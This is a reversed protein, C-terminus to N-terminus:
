VVGRRKNASAESYRYPSAPRGSHDRIERRGRLRDFNAMAREFGVTSPYLLARIRWLRYEAFYGPSIGLVSALREMQDATAPAGKGSMLQHLRTRSITLGEARLVALTLLSLSRLQELTEENALQEITELSVSDIFVAAGPESSTRRIQLEETVPNADLSRSITFNIAGIVLAGLGFVVVTYFVALRVRASRLFAPRSTM